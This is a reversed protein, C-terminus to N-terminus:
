FQTCFNLKRSRFRDTQKFTQLYKYIINGKLIDGLHQTKLESISLLKSMSLATISACLCEYFHSNYYNFHLLDFITSIPANVKSM